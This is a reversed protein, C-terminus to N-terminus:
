YLGLIFALIDDNTVTTVGSGTGYYTTGVVKYNASKGWPFYESHIVSFLWDGELDPTFGLLYYGSDSYKEDISWTVANTGDARNSGNPDFIAVTFDGQTLSGVLFGTDQDIVSFDDVCTQDAYIYTFM